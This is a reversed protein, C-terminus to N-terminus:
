WRWAPMATIRAEIAVDDARCYARTADTPAFPAPAYRVAADPSAAPSSSDCGAALALALALALACRRERAGDLDISERPAREAANGGRGRGRGGGGVSGGQGRGRGRGNEDRCRGHENVGGEAAGEDARVRKAQRLQDVQGRPQPARRLRRWPRPKGRTCGRGSGSGCARV